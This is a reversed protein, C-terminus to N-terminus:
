DCLEAECVIEKANLQRQFEWGYGKLVKQNAEEPSTAEVEYWVSAVEEVEVVYTDM